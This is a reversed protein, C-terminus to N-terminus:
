LAGEKYYSQMCGIIKAEEQGQAVEYDHEAKDQEEPTM